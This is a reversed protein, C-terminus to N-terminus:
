PLAFPLWGLKMGVLTLFAFGVIFLVRREYAGGSEIPASEERLRGPDIM